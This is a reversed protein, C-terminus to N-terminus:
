VHESGALNPIATLLDEVKAISITAVPNPELTGVWATTGGLKDAPELNVIRDDVFLCKGVELQGATELAVTYAAMHPKNLYKMAQIDIIGRFYGRVGLAKLVREAHGASANTWIWKAQPLQQLMGELAPNPKIREEVPIQHVYELYVQPDVQYHIHLGRLTTGYTALYEQRLGDIDKERIGVEERMFLHIRDLLLEWLGSSDDYLTGDLDFFITEIQMDRSYILQM